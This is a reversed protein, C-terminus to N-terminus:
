EAGKQKALICNIMSALIGVATFGQNGYGSVCDDVEGLLENAKELEAELEAIRCYQQYMGAHAEDITEIDFEINGDEDFQLAPLNNIEM